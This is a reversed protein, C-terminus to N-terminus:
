DCNGIAGGPNPKTLRVLISASASDQMQILQVGRSVRVEQVDSGPRDQYAVM